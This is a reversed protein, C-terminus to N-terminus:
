KNPIHIARKEAALAAERVAETVTPHAHITAIIDEVTAELGIALACEGILDTARPGLIHVGLVEKYEKGLIFKITGVGGNMILSKGNAMLPFKGVIYEIGMEKAKEETLGVGAFEPDTYVCSPNTAGDYVAEEGLANEAAVEGQASAVHALMVKGLCDGIAYVGPVNTEMKDNVTIRGRDNAIGVADLNLAETDTRRGVAVLIKDARLYEEKGDAMQVKAKVNAQTCPEVALVKADTMIKVGRAEMMKRMQATLEGDMMPLLKPAAEVVTVDVGFKKYATALEIGIVGGGIVLLSKPLKEFSLAGTSDVCNANEKVGPIPPIAPISGAAIIIKDFSMNEKTGDKKTVTLTDKAAFSATGEVVKIKNAKMLGTVGSVLQNTIASKKAQVKSWDVSVVQANIGYAAMEKVESIAEAAHLIAKTPICGVNLCTGGLKNKEILTVKGGLQAARIAAVYGGPGGGIVAVTTEGAPKKAVAPAPASAAAPAPAAGGVQEGAAGIYALTGKVPVDDGEKAVIKILVGEAEATVESTLKDTTIELLVDGVKVSDGEQKIWKSVTGEEMTLGLQPMKVEVAM